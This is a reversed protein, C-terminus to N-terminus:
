LVFARVASVTRAKQSDIEHLRSRHSFLLTAVAVLPLWYLRKIAIRAALVADMRYALRALEKILGATARCIWFLNFSSLSFCVGAIAKAKRLLTASTRLPVTKEIQFLTAGIIYRAIRGITFPLARSIIFIVPSIRKPLQSFTSTTPRTFSLGAASM